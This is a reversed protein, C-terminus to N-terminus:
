NVSGPVESVYVINSAFPSRKIDHVIRGKYQVRCIYNDQETVRLGQFDNSSPGRYIGLVFSKCGAPSSFAKNIHTIAVDLDLDIPLDHFYHHCSCWYKDAFDSNCLEVDDYGDYRPFLDFNDGLILKKTYALKEEVIQEKEDIAIFSSYHKTKLMRETGNDLISWTSVVKIARLSGYTILNAKANLLTCGEIGFPRDAILALGWFCGLSDATLIADEYLTDINVGGGERMRENISSSIIHMFDVEGYFGFYLMVLIQYSKYDLRSFEGNQCASRFFSDFQYINGYLYDRSSTGSTDVTSVALSYDPYIGTDTRPMSGNVNWCALATDGDWCHWGNKYTKSVRVRCKDTEINKSDWWFRPLIMFHNKCSSNAIVLQTNLTDEIPKTNLDTVRLAQLNSDYSGTVYRTHERIWSFVNEDSSHTRPIHFICSLGEGRGGYTITDYIISGDSEKLVAVDGTIIVKDSQTYSQDIYITSVDGEEFDEDEDDDGGEDGGDDKSYGRIKYNGTITLSDKFINETGADVLTDTMALTGGGISGGEFELVCNEPVTISKTTVNYNVATSGGVVDAIAITWGDEVTLIPTHPNHWVNDSTMYLIATTNGMGSEKTIIDGANTAIVKYNFNHGEVEIVGQNLEAIYGTTVPAIEYDYQIKYITNAKSIMEQTLYNHGDVINKQLNVRGMGSFKTTDYDKDAVIETNVEALAKAETADAGAQTVETTLDRLNKIPTPLVNKGQVEVQINKQEM